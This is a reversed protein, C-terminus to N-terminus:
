YTNIETVLLEISLRVPKGVGHYRSVNSFLITSLRCYKDYPAFNMTITESVWVNQEFFNCLAHECYGKLDIQFQNLSRLDIYPAV